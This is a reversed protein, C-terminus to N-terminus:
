NHQRRQDFHGLFLVTVKGRYEKGTGEVLKAKASMWLNDMKKARMRETASFAQPYANYESCGYQPM